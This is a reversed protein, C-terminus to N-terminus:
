TLGGGIVRAIAELCEKRRRRSLPVTDGDVVLTDKGIHSVRQCNVLFSPSTKTFGAFRPDEELTGLKGYVKFIGEKTHFILDHSLVEVYGIDDVDVVRTGEKQSIPYRAERRLALRRLVRGAERAFDEYSVPKVLFAMAEVQYGQMAYQAMSTIFLIPVREDRERLKRACEMGDMLPMAIDLLVADYEGHYSELFFLGNQFRECTTELQKERGLRMIYETLVRAQGDEDEVVAWRLM